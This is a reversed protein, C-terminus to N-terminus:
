NKHNFTTLHTYSMGQVELELDKYEILKLELDITESVNKDLMKQLHDREKPGTAEIYERINELDKKALDNKATKSLTPDGQYKGQFNPDNKFAEVLKQKHLTAESMRADLSALESSIRVYQKEKKEIQKSTETILLRLASPNQEYFKKQAGTLTHGKKYQKFKAKGQKSAQNVKPLRQDILAKAGGKGSIRVQTQTTPLIQQKQCALSLVSTMVICSLVKFQHKMIQKYINILKGM